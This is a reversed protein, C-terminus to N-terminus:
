TFNLSANWLLNTGDYYFSLVDVSGVAATLTIAGAGGNAVKSVPSTPLTLTYSGTGGQIVELTGYDGRVLNNVSLTRSAALTVKANYAASIDWNITAEDTLTVPTQYSMLDNLKDSTLRLLERMSRLQNLRLLPIM